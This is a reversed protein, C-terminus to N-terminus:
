ALGRQRLSASATWNPGGSIQFDPLPPGAISYAAAVLQQLTVNIGFGREGSKNPKVSAAEFAPPTADSAPAQAGFAIIEALAFLGFTPAVCKKVAGEGV